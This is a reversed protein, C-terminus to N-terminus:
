GKEKAGEDPAKSVIGIPGKREGVQVIPTVSRLNQVRRLAEQQQMTFGLYNRSMVKMSVRAAKSVLAADAGDAVAQNIGGHRGHYPVWKEGAPGVLGAKEAQTRAKDYWSEYTSKPVPKTRTPDSVAVFVYPGRSERMRHELIPVVDESVPIPETKKNKTRTPDLNIRRQALQVETKLLLRAEGPRFGVCRFQVRTIDAFMPHGHDCVFETEEWTPKWLRRAEEPYRRWGRMPNSDLKRSIEVHWAFCSQLVTLVRQIYSPKPATGRRTKSAELSAKVLEVVYASVHAVPMDLITTETGEFVFRTRGLVAGAVDVISADPKTGRTPAWERWLDRVPTLPLPPPPVLPETQGRIVRVMAAVEEPTGDLVMGDIEVRM